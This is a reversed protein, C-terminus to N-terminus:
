STSPTPFPGGTNSTWAPTVSRRAHHGTTSANFGLWVVSVKSWRPNPSVVNVGSGCEPTSSATATSSWAPTSSGTATTAQEM